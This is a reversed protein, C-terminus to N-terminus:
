SYLFHTTLILVVSFFIAHSECIFIKANSKIFNKTSDTKYKVIKKIKAIYLMYAKKLNVEFELPTSVVSWHFLVFKYLHFTMPKLGTTASM